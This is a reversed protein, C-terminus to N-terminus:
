KIFPAQWSAKKSELRVFYYGKPLNSIPVQEGFIYNNIVLLIRGLGDIISLNGTYVDSSLDIDVRIFDNAPNPYINIKKSIDPENGINSVLSKRWPTAYLQLGGRANGVILEYFGDNNIDALAPKVQFGNKLISLESSLVPFSNLRQSADYLLLGKEESGTILKLGEPTQFFQPASSGTLYGPKNTNVAGLRTSNPEYDSSDDFFPKEKTGKNQFYNINGGREGVILDLLGDKNVDFVSPTAYLGVDIDMFPYALAEASFPKGAGGKNEGYFLKGMEDGILVDLDGDNDLDGFTPSFDRSVSNYRKLELFNSDKLVFSPSNLNGTNEFYFLGSPVNGPDIFNGYNGVVLDLLGDANIDVWTPSAGKGFDITNEILFDSEELKFIAKQITGVNKYYLVANKDVSNYVANPTFILDKLSDQNVDLAFAAPFVPLDVPFDYAPFYNDQKNMWATKCNGENTLLTINPFSIDGLFLEKDGDNDLDITLLTSGSHRLNGALEGPTIKFCIGQAPSLNIKTSFGSEYFGGWCQDELRFLLSDSKFNKEVSENRYFEAFGGNINFTIIDLDGDCDIDDLAPIDIRTVYLNSQGGVYLPFFIINYPAKFNIRKFSLKNNLDYFGKWVQIGDVGPVDSYAFFDSIGDKDYDKLLVWSEANPFHAVFEPALVYEVKDSGTVKKKGIYAGHINGVRDFVYIDSIGDKNFDTESFQPCKWGGTFPQPILQSGEYVPFSIEKFTQGWLIFPFIFFFFRFLKLLM